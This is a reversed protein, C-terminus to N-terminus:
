GGSWVRVFELRDGEKVADLETVVEGNLVPVYEDLLLGLKEMVDKVTAGEGVNVSKVKGELKVTVM